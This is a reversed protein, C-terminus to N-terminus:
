ILMVAGGLKKDIKEIWERAFDQFEMEFILGMDPEDSLTKILDKKLNKDVTWSYRLWKIIESEKAGVIMINHNKADDLEIKIDRFDNGIRSSITIKAM